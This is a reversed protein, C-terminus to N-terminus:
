PRWEPLLEEAERIVALARNMSGVTYGVPKGDNFSAAFETLMRGLVAHAADREARMDVAEQALRYAEANTKLAAEAREAIESENSTM